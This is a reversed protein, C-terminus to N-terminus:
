ERGRRPVAGPKAVVAPTLVFPYLDGKGMSRNVADLGYSLPM